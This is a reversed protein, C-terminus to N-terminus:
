LWLATTLLIPATVMKLSLNSTLLSRASTYLCLCFLKVLCPALESACNKLVVPPVGDPGYAKWYDLGSFAHFIDYHLIKIKHIFYDSPSPTALDHGTDDLTSNTAFNQAFLDAKSFSPVATSGGLQLLLPFFSSTFKNSINNALHWFDRFSNSNSFHQCKRNIFFNKTLPLIFKAHNRASIRVHTAASSHSRYRKHATERDKVARSCASNFWANKAKTNSFAHFIYLDM